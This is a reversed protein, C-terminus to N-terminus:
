FGIDISVYTSTVYDFLQHYFSVVETANIDVKKVTLDVNGSLIKKEFNVDLSIFINTVIAFEVFVLVMHMSYYFIVSIILISNGPRSFSSPDQPSLSKGAM